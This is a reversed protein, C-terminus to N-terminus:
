LTLLSMWSPVALLALASVNAPFPVFTNLKPPM